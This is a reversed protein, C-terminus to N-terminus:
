LSENMELKSILQTRSSVGFKNYMNRLHKKVTNISISLHVSIQENTYGKLLLHYIDLERKSLLAKKESGPNKDGQRYLYITYQNSRPDSNVKEHAIIKIKWEDMHFDYPSEKKALYLPINPNISTQFFEEVTSSPNITQIINQATVNYFSINLKHNVQIIGLEDNDVKKLFLKEAEIEEMVLTHNVLHNIHASLTQLIEKEKESFAKEGQFRAFGIGGYIISTNAFYLVMQDIMQHKQVFQYYISNVFANPTTIEKITLVNKQSSVVKSLQKKPHMIDKDSYTETYDLIIHDAFNFFELNYMNGQADARWFMSHNFHFLMSLLLQIKNSTNSSTPLTSNM